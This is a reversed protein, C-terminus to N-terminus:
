SDIPIDYTGLTDLLHIASCIIQEQIVHRKIPLHREIRADFHCHGQCLLDALVPVQGKLLRAHQEPDRELAQEIEQLKENHKQHERFVARLLM